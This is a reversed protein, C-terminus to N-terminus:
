DILPEQRFKLKYLTGDREVHISITESAQKYFIDHAANMTLNGDKLGELYTVKDGIQVGADHAPSNKRVYNVILEPVYDYTFRKTYDIVVQDRILGYPGQINKVGSGGVLTTFLKLSGARLQIGAMNFYFPDGYGRSDRLYVAANKYDLVVHFRRWIEGGLSGSSNEYEEVGLQNLEPFSTAVKNFTFSSLKLKDLKTRKGYIDGNIGFGLYDEFYKVPKLFTSDTKFSWLADSSGTDMLFHGQMSSSNNLLAATVYPKDKKFIVDLREYKDLSYPIFSIDKYIRLLKKNYDIEVVQNKFFDAGLLGNVFVGLQPQMDIVENALVYVEAADNQVDGIKIVNDDTYFVELFDREGYGSIKINKKVNISLTDINNWNFLLTKSAGTDLIFKTEKGNFIAPVIILNATEQFPIETFQLDDLLRFSQQGQAATCFVLVWLFLAKKM